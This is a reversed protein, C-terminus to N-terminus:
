RVYIKTNSDIKFRVAIHFIFFGKKSILQFKLIKM